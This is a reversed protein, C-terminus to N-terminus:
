RHADTDIPPQNEQMEDTDMPAGDTALEAEAKADNRMIERLLTTAFSGAPLTFALTIHPGHEDAGAALDIETPRVRLPRREGKVRVWHGGRFRDPSFGYRGFVEHEIRGPEGTAKTMRYGLMPGTPSIEFANCRPQEVAPDEVKFCAGNEHKMALDGTLVRDLTHHQVRYGCVENFLHSQLATVWLSRLRQDVIRVAAGPRGTKIFRALCRREIGCRRPWARMSEELKGEEFLMRAELTAADDTRPDPTGLLHKLVAADDERVLAAGLLHNDGRRGFRQEGFYNPMGRRELEAMVPRVKVVDTPTVERIKIAFRNGRLHGLRLKNGHPMAWLIQLDDWKLEGVRDAASRPLSLVQRTIAFADKLGAYGVERSSIGLAQAVRNIADFTTLRVKQIEVYLHEGEGSPEYLPLEQVFFDEPRDKTKGGVGAFSAISYPLPMLFGSRSSWSLQPLWLSSPRGVVLV